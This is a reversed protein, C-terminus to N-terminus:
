DNYDETYKTVEEYFMKNIEEQNIKGQIEKQKEKTQFIFTEAKSKLYELAIDLESINDINITADNISGNKEIIITVKM